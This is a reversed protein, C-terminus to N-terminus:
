QAAREEDTQRRADDNLVKRTIGRRVLPKPPMEHRVLFMLVKTVEELVVTGKVGMVHRVVSGNFYRMPAAKVAEPLDPPEKVLKRRLRAAQVDDPHTRRWKACARINREKQCEPKGCVRQRAGIRPDVEFWRRCIACPRKTAM